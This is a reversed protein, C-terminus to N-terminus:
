WRLSERVMPNTMRLHDKMYRVEERPTNVKDTPKVLSLNVKMFTKIQTSLGAKEKFRITMGTERMGRGM